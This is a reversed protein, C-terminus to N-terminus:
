YSAQRFIATCTGGYTYGGLGAGETSLLVFASPAIQGDDVGASMYSMTDQAGSGVSQAAVINTATSTAFGNTSASVVLSGATSTGTGIQYDFSELTSTAGGFPNAFSCLTTTASKMSGHLYYKTIGGISEFNYPSWPSATGSLLESDPATTETTQDITVNSGSEFVNTATGQYARVGVFVAFVAVLTVVTISAPLSVKNFYKM